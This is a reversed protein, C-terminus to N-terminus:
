ATEKWDADAPPAPPYPDKVPQPINSGLAPVESSTIQTFVDGILTLLGGSGNLLATAADAMPFKFKYTIDVYAKTEDEINYSTDFVYHHRGPPVPGVYDEGDHLHDSAAFRIKRAPSQLLEPQPDKIITTTENTIDSFNYENVRKLGDIYNKVEDTPSGILTCSQLINMFADDEIATLSSGVHLIKLQQAYKFAGAGVSEVTDPLRLFRVKESHMFANEGISSLQSNNGFYIGKISCCDSLFGDEIETVSNPIFVNDIYLQLAKFQTPHSKLVGYRVYKSGSTYGRVGNLLYDALDRGDKDCIDVM